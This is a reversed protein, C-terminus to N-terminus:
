KEEILTAKDFSFNVELNMLSSWGKIGRAMDTDSVGDSADLLRANVVPNTNRWTVGTKLYKVWNEMACIVAFKIPFIGPNVRQDGTSLIIRYRQVIIRAGSTQKTEGGSVPIIILEPLDASSVEEKIPHRDDYRNLNIRNGAKVLERLRASSDLLEWLADYVLTFPDLDFTSM